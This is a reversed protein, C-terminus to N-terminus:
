WLEYSSLFQALEVDIVADVAVTGVIDEDVGVLKIEVVSCCFFGMLLKLVLTMLMVLVM